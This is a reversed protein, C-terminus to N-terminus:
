GKWNIMTKTELFCRSNLFDEPRNENCMMPHNSEYITTEKPLKQKAKKAEAGWLFWIITSNKYSLYEVIKEFFPEWLKQHSNPKLVECTLSANLFLVGQKELSDFWSAPPLISFRGAEIETVINGYTRIGNKWSISEYTKYVLRIINKLSVQKYFQSWSILNAPQFCRGNAAGPQFYPDQGLWLVKKSSLDQEMFRLIFEKKPTFNEGIKKMIELFLDKTEKTWFDKWSSHIKENPLMSDGM